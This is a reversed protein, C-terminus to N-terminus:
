NHYLTGTIMAPFFWGSVTGQLCATKGGGQVLLRFPAGVPLKAQGAASGGVFGLQLTGPAILSFQLAPGLSRVLLTPRSPSPSPGGERLEFAGPLTLLVAGSGVPAFVPLANPLAPCAFAVPWPWPFVPFPVGVAPLFILQVVVQVIVLAPFFTFAVIPAAPFVLFAIVQGTTVHILVLVLSGHMAGVAVTPPLPQGALRAGPPLQLWGLLAAPLQGQAVQALNVESAGQFPVFTAGQALPIPTAQPQAQLGQPTAGLGLAAARAQWQALLAGFQPHGPLVVQAQQALQHIVSPPPSPATPQALLATQPGFTLAASLLGILLGRAVVELVKLRLRPGIRM